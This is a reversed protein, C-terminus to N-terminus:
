GDACNRRSKPLFQNRVGANRRIRDPSRQSTGSHIFQNPLQMRCFELDVPLRQVFLLKDSATAHSQALDIEFGHFAPDCWIKIEGALEEVNVADGAAKIELGGPCGSPDCSMRHRTGFG